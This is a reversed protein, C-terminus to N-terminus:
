RAVVMKATSSLTLTAHPIFATLPTFNHRIQVTVVDGASAAALTATSTTNPGLSMTMGLSRSSVYTQLNCDTTTLSTAKGCVAARRAGEKALNAVVNYRWVAQGFEMIGFITMFFVTSVLAFEIITNGRCDRLLSKM